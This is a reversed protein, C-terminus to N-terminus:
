ETEMTDVYLSLEETLMWQVDSYEYDALWDEPDKTGINRVRVEGAVYDLITIFM